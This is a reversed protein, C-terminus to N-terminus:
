DIANKMVLADQQRSAPTQRRQFLIAPLELTMLHARMLNQRATGACVFSSAM